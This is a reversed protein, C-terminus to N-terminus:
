ADCSNEIEGFSRQYDVSWWAREKCDWMCLWATSKAKKSATKKKQWAIWSNLYFRIQQFAQIPLAAVYADFM